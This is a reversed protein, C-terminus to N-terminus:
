FHNIQVPVFDASEGIDLFQLLQWIEIAQSQMPIRNLIIGVVPVRIVYTYLYTDGYTTHFNIKTTKGPFQDAPGTVWFYHSRRPHVACYKFTTLM